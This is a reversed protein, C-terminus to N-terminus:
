KTWGRELSFSLKLLILNSQARDLTIKFTELFPADEVERPLRNLTKDSYFFKM